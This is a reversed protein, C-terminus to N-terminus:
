KVGDIEFIFKSGKGVGESEAWIRGKHKQIMQRAVYLGLGTGIVNAQNANDARIFKDFLKPLADHSIGVGSDSVTFRCTTNVKELLIHIYGVKTYKLSNDILNNLVQKIKANDGHIIMAENPIDVKFELKSADITPAMEGVVDNVLAKLDFDTFTFKMTGLEIRTVDLFDSVIQILSQTSTFVHRLPMKMEEPVDGYDGDLVMATYGKIATM